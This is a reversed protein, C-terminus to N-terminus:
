ILHKGNVDKLPSEFRKYGSTNKGSVTGFNNSDAAAEAEGVLVIIFKHKARSVSPQVDCSKTRYQRQMADREGDSKAIM